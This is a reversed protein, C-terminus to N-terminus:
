YSFVVYYCSYISHKFIERGGSLSMGREGIETMDGNSLQKLDDELASVQVVDHYLQKNFEEGFLINERVTGAFLWSEQAAYTMTGVVQCEGSSIPLESLLV